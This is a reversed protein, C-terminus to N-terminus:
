FYLSEDQDQLSEDETEPETIGVQCLYWDDEHHYQWQIQQLSQLRHLGAWEGIGYVSEVFRFPTERDRSNAVEGPAYLPSIARYGTMLPVLWGPFPKPQYRWFAASEESLEEDETLQPEARYQLAIFDLWADFLTVDPKEQKVNQWHQRLYDSRDLLMFGPLLRRVKKRLFAPQEEHTPLTDIDVSRLGTIIGGALRRQQCLQYLHQKLATIAADHNEPLDTCGILLSVTMSMRGEEVIPATKGERTLPNRTLAFVYDGRGSPRHAHVQHQHCVVGCGQLSIGHSQQLERSLAHVYGLFHTVAPFGYTVGAIANVNTVQLHSLVILRTIPLSM